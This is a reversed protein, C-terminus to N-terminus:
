TSVLNPSSISPPLAFSVHHRILIYYLHCTNPALTTFHVTSLLLWNLNIQQQISLWHLSNLASTTNTTSRTVLRALSNQVRQLRHINRSSIGTLISNVYDLRSCVNTKPTESDLFPRIHCFDGVHFYSSSCVNSIHKDFTLHKDFNYIIKKDLIAAASLKSKLEVSNEIGCM